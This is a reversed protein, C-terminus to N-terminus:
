RALLQRTEQAAAHMAQEPTLRKTFAASLYRQLIDSAQAYQPTPPRLVANQAIDLLQPFHPYQAVIADETFLATRTPMYGGALALQRQSDASTLFQIVQWAQDPYKTTSAIGFGWGGKCAGSTAGPNHVMPVLGLKGKIPSDPKNALAWVYPWSRLFVANGAQFLYRGDEERYTIVGPPSLHQDITGVLFAVAQIAEPSDLGVQRTKPDIWTGGFGQLIEVFMAVSGEYQRGQWLYGWTAKGQQQLSRGIRVLEAFTQPPQSGAQQLLDQRYYLVGIDSRMPIRYLGDRYRGATVDAPLFNALESSSIRYSLNLLWGAAAFKPTWTVDMYVLDYPSDGLLFAATSLDELVDPSTSGEVLNLRITPHQQEFQQVLPKWMPVETATMLLALTVPPEALSPRNTLIGIALSVATVLSLLGLMLRKSLSRHQRTM